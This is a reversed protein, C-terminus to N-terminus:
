KCGACPAPGSGFIYNILYVADSIDVFGNCDADGASLSPKPAPGGGFIYSVLYAADSITILGDNDADGPKLTASCDYKMLWYSDGIQNNADLARARVLYLLGQQLQAPPLTAKFGDWGDFDVGFTIYTIAEQRPHLAIGLDIPYKTNNPLYGLLLSDGRVLLFSERLLGGIPDYFTVPFSDAKANQYDIKQVALWTGFPNHVAFAVTALRGLYNAKFWEWNPKRKIEPTIRGLHTKLWDTLGYALNDDETGINARTKFSTALKEVLQPITLFTAGDLMIEIYGKDYWHKFFSAVVAPASYYEGFEGNYNHNGDNVNGNADGYDSRRLISLARDETATLYRYGFTVATPNEDQITVVVTEAGCTAMRDIRGTFIPELPKLDLYATITDSVYTSDTDAISVRLPYSGEPLMYPRWITSWGDYNATATVGDRLTVHGDFDSGIQNWTGSKFYEFRASEYSFTDNLEATWLLGGPLINGSDAPFIFHPKPLKGVKAYGISFLHILGPFNYYDNQSLDALGEGWDNYNICLYPVTDMAVGPYMASMDTGYYICAFYPEYVPVPIELAIIVSFVDAYPITVEYPESLYIMEGPVPCVPSSYIPDVKALFVQVQITGADSFALTQGIHTVVFPYITDCTVKPFFLDQYAYYIEDGVMWDFLAQVPRDVYVTCDSAYNLMKHFATTVPTREAPLPRIAAAKKTAAGGLAQRWASKGAIPMTKQNVTTQSLGVAFTAVLCLLAALVALIRIRNM